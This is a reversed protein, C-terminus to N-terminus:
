SVSPAEHIRLDLPVDAPVRATVRKLDGEIRKRTADDLVLPPLDMTPANPFVYLVTLRAGYWRAVAAAHDLAHLSFESFDM